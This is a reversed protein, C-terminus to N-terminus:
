DGSVAERRARIARKWEYQLAAFEEAYQTDGSDDRTAARGTSDFGLRAGEEMSILRVPAKDFFPHEDLVMDYMGIVQGIVCSCDSAMDLETLEIKDLWDHVNEDLYKVGAAVREAISLEIV